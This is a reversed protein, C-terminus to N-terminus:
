LGDAGGKGGEVQVLAEGVVGRVAGVKEGRGGGGGDGGPETAVREVGHDIDGEAAHGVEVGGLEGLEGVAKGESAVGEDPDDSRGLLM